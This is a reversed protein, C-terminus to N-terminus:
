LEAVSSHEALVASRTRYIHGIEASPETRNLKQRVHEPNPRDSYEDKSWVLSNKNFSEYQTPWEASTQM